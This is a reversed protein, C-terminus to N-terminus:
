FAYELEARKTRCMKTESGDCTGTFCEQGSPCNSDGSCQNSCWGGGNITQQETKNLAKGLNLIQKKM